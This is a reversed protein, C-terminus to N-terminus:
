PNVITIHRTTGTSATYHSDGNYTATATHPGLGLGGPVDFVVYNHDFGLPVVNHTGNDIVITVTGTRFGYNVNGARLGVNAVFRVYTTATWSTVPSAPVSHYQLVTKTASKDGVFVTVAASTSGAVTASGEYTATVSHTGADFTYSLQAIGSVLDASGLPTVGEFFDVQGTAARTAVVKAQLTVANGTTQAAPLAKLRTSSPVLAGAPSSQAVVAASAALALAALAISSRRVHARPAM